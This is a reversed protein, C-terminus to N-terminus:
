ALCITCALVISKMGILQALVHTYAKANPDTVAKTLSVSTEIRASATHQQM